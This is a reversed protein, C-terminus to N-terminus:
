MSLIRGKIRWQQPHCLMNDRFREVERVIDLRRDERQRVALGHRQPALRVYVHLNRNSVVYAGFTAPVRQGRAALKRACKWPEGSAGCVPHPFNANVFVAIKVGFDERSAQANNHSLFQARQGDAWMGTAASISGYHIVDQIFVAGM